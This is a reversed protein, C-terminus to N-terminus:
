GLVDIALQVGFKASVDFFMQCASLVAADHQVRGPASDIEHLCGCFLRDKGIICAFAKELTKIQIVIQGHFSHLQERNKM